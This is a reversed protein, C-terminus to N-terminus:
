AAVVLGDRISVVRHARAALERDHTVYLVTTGHENLHKFLEFM